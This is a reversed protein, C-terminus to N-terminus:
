QCDRWASRNILEPHGPLPIKAPAMHRTSHSFAIDELTRVYQQLLQKIKKSM